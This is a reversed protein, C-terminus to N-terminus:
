SGLVGVVRWLATMIGGEVGGQKGGRKDAEGAGVVVSGAPEDVDVQAERDAVGVQNARARKSAVAADEVPRRKASLRKM